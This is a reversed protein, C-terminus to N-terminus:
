FQFFRHCHRFIGKNRWGCVNKEKMHDKIRLFILSDSSTQDPSCTRHPFKIKIWKEETLFLNTQKPPTLDLITVFIVLRYPASTHMKALSRKQTIRISLQWNKFDAESHWLELNKTRGKYHTWFGRPIIVLCSRRGVECNRGRIFKLVQVYKWNKTIDKLSAGFLFDKQSTLDIWCHTVKAPLSWYVINEIVKVQEFVSLLEKSSIQQRWRYNREVRKFSGKVLKQLTRLVVTKHKREQKRINCM